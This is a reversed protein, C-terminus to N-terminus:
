PTSAVTKGNEVLFPKKALPIVDSTATRSENTSVSANATGQTTALLAVGFDLAFTAALLLAIALSTKTKNKNEM